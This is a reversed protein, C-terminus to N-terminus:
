LEISIFQVSFLNQFSYIFIISILMIRGYSQTSTTLVTKCIRCKLVSKFSGQTSLSGKSFISFIKWPPLIVMVFNNFHNNTYHFNKQLSLDFIGEIRYSCIHQAIPYLDVTYLLRISKKSWSIYNCISKRKQVTLSVSLANSNWNNWSNM